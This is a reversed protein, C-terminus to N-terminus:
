INHVDSTAESNHGHLPSFDTYYPFCIYGDSYMIVEVHRVVTSLSSLIQDWLFCHTRVCMVSSTKFLRWPSSIVTTLQWFRLVGIPEGHM